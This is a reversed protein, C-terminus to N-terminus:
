KVEDPSIGFYTEMEVKSNETFAGAWIREVKRQDDIVITLPTLNLKYVQKFEAKPNGFVEVNLGNSTLLDQTNARNDLAIGYIQYQLRDSADKIAKWYPLSRECVPCQSAFVLFVTKPHDSFNVVRRQGALTNATFSPVQQGPTLFEPQQHAIAAKLSRNQRVLLGNVVCLGVILLLLLGHGLTARNLGITRGSSRFTQLRSSM